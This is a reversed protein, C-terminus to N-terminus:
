LYHAKLPFQVYFTSGADKISEVWVRGSHRTVIEKVIYLGIGFGSLSRDLTRARYFREFIRPMEDSSIGIGQDKVWILAERYGGSQRKEPLARLGVEIEGGEPSYKVANNILNSVVQIVRERDFVGMLRDQEQLGDLVFRFNHLKTAIGQSKVLQDLLFLLDHSAYNLDLQEQEIKSIDLMAKILRELHESQDVIHALAAQEFENLHNEQTEGMKLLEAFGQIITIPTRLEHNAISLFENKQQELSKQTTIDQFVIVAGTMVSKEAVMTYLPAGSVLMVAKDGDSRIVMAEKSRVTEGSLAQILFFNWPAVIYGDESREWQSHVLQHVASGVLYTLPMNLLLASAPNAYSISGSISDAILIGEPLQDLVTHLHILGHKVGGTVAYAAEAEERRNVSPLMVAEVVTIDTITQLLHHPHEDADYIVDLTWNWLTLQGQLTSIAVGNERYTKGTEAVVRFINTNAFSHLSAGFETLTHGVVKGHQWCPDLFDDLRSLFLANAELLCFDQVDYLAVGVPMYELITDAYRYERAKVPGAM